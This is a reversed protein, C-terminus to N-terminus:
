PYPEDPQKQEAHYVAGAPQAASYPSVYAIFRSSDDLFRIDCYSDTRLIMNCESLTASAGDGAAVSVLEGKCFIVCFKSGAVMAKARLGTRPATTPVPNLKQDFEGLRMYKPRKHALSWSVTQGPKMNYVKKKYIKFMSCFKPCDYPTWMVQDAAVTVGLDSQYTGIISNPTANFDNPDVLGNYYIDDRAMCYYVDVQCASRDSNCLTHRLTYKNMILKDRLWSQDYLVRANACASVIAPDLTCLSAGANWMAINGHTILLGRGPNGKMTACHSQKLETPQVASARLVVDTQGRARRNLYGQRALLRRNAKRRNSRASRISRSYLRYAKRASFGFGRRM